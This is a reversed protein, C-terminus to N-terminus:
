DIKYRGVGIKVVNFGESTLEKRVRCFHNALYPSGLNLEQFKTEISFTSVIEGAILKNKIFDHVQQGVGDIKKRNFKNEVIEYNPFEAKYSADCIAPVLDELDLIPPNELRVVSIEAGFTKSFEILQSFNREHTFFNRKDNTKILLCQNKNM